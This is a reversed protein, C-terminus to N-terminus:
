NTVASLGTGAVADLLDRTTASGETDFEVNVAHQKPYAAVRKVGKQKELADKVQKATADDKLEPVKLTLWGSYHMGGGMM